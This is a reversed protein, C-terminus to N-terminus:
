VVDSSAVLRPFGRVGPPPSPGLIGTAWWVRGASSIDNPPSACPDSRQSQRASRPWDPPLSTPSSDCSSAAPHACRATIPPRDTISLLQCHVAESRRATLGANTVKVPWCPLRCCRVQRGAPRTRPARICASPGARRCPTRRTRRRIEPPKTVAFHGTAGPEAALIALGIRRATQGCQRRQPVREGRDLLDCLGNLVRSINAHFSTAQFMQCHCM